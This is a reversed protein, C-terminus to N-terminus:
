KDLIGPRLVVQSPDICPVGLRELIDRGFTASFSQLPTQDNLKKRPFGNAHGMVQNLDEQTLDNCSTGKPLIRRLHKHAM